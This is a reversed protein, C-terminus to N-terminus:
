PRLSGIPAITEVTFETYSPYLIEIADVISHKCTGLPILHQFSEGDECTEDIVYVKLM